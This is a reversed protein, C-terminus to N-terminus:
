GLGRMTADKEASVCVENGRSKEKEERHEICLSYLEANISQTCKYYLTAPQQEAAM